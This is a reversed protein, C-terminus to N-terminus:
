LSHQSGAAAGHADRYLWLLALLFGLLAGVLHLLVNVREGWLSVDAASAGLQAFLLGSLCLLAACGVRRFGRSAEGLEFRRSADALSAVVLAVAMAATILAVPGGVLLLLPLASGLLFCALSLMWSPFAVAWGCLRRFLGWWYYASFGFFAYAVGSFGLSLLPVGLRWCFLLWVTSLVPPVVVLLALVHLWVPPFWPEAVVGRAGRSWPGRFIRWAAVPLLWVGLAAFYAAINGWLHGWSEHVFHSTYLTYLSELSFGGPNLAYVGARGTLAQAAVLLLPVVLVVLVSM